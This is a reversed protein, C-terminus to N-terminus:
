RPGGSSMQCLAYLVYLNGVLAYGLFVAILSAFYAVLVRREGVRDILRGV